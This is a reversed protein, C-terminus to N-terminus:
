PLPASPRRAAYIRMPLFGGSCHREMEITFGAQLLADRIDRNLHCNGAMRRQLPTFATQMRAVWHQPSRVHELLLLRGDPKLVRAVESLTRQLDHVSCLVLTALVTDFTGTDFPLQEATAQTLHVPVRSESLHSHAYGLMTSEPETAEVESVREPDFYPFNQGGGAGLELVRGSAMQALTRRYEDFYAISSRRRSTWEHFRAFLPSSRFQDTDAMAVLDGKGSGGAQGRLADPRAGARLPGLHWYM